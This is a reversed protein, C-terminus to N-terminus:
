YRLVSEQKEFLATQNIKSRYIDLAREAIGELKPIDFPKVLYLDAGAKNALSIIDNDSSFMVIPIVKFDPHKKLLQSAKIGGGNPLHIDMLIVFPSCKSVREVINNCDNSTFVDWGSCKLLYTVMFLLDQDDDCILLKKM